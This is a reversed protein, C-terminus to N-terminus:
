RSLPAPGLPRLLIDKQAQFENESLIGKEKLAALKSLEDAVSLGVVSTNRSNAAARINAIRLEVAARLAEFQPQQKKDFLVANVDKTAEM